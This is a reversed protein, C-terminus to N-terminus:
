CMGCAQKKSVSGARCMTLEDLNLHKVNIRLMELKDRLEKNTHFTRLESKVRQSNSSRFVQLYQIHIIKDIFDLLVVKLNESRPIKPDWLGLKKSIRTYVRIKMNMQKAGNTTSNRRGQRIERKVIHYFNKDENDRSPSPSATASNYVESCDAIESAIECDEVGDCLQARM